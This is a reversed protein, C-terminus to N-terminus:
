FHFFHILFIFIELNAKEGM